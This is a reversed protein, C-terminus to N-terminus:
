AKYVPIEPAQPAAVLRRYTPTHDPFPDPTSDGFTDKIGDIAEWESWSLDSASIAMPIAWLVRLALERQRVITGSQERTQEVQRWLLADLLKERVPQKPSTIHRIQPVASKKLDIDEPVIVVEEGPKLEMYNIRGTPNPDVDTRGILFDQEDRTADSADLVEQVLLRKRAEWDWRKQFAIGERINATDEDVPEEIRPKM